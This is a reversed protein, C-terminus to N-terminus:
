KNNDTILYHEGKLAENMLEAFLVVYKLAVFFRSFKPVKNWEDKLNNFLTMFKVIFNARIENESELRVVEMKLQMIQAQMAVQAKNMM